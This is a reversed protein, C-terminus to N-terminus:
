EKGAKREREERLGERVSQWLDFGAMSVVILVIIV